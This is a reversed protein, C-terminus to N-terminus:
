GSLRARVADSVRRGDARGAVQPMLQRMVAGMDRPSSAGVGAITADILSMLEDDGLAAPMYPVLAELEFGEQEALDARGATEYTELAEERRKKERSLVALESDETPEARSDIRERKLAAVYLRLAGTVVAAMEAGVSPTLVLLLIGERVGLGGPAFLAVLGITAALATGAVYVGLWRLPLDTQIGRLVRGASERIM